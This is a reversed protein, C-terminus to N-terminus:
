WKFDTKHIALYIYNGKAGKNLDARENSGYYNVWSWNSNILISSPVGGTDSSGIFDIAKTDSPKVKRYALYLYEGGAGKNLDYNVKTWGAPVAANNGRLVVIDAIADQNSKRQQLLYSIRIYEGKAKHNADLAVGFNQDYLDAYVLNSYGSPISVSGNKSGWVNLAVIFMNYNGLKNEQNKVRAEFEKKIENAKVPNEQAVLTWIPILSKDFAAIGCLDPTSKLSSVWASYGANFSAQDIFSVNHGGKISSSFYSNNQLDTIKEQFGGSANGSFLKFSANITASMETDSNINSGTYSYNFEASGGHYCRGILHSGFNDLIYAASKTRISSLFDDNFYNRLTAPAINALYEDKVYHKGHGKAYRVTKGGDKTTKFETDVKGSFLVKNYDVNISANYHNYFTTVSEGSTVSWESFTSPTQIIARALNLKDIDLIPRNLFADDRNIYSSNIVDYGVGLFTLDRPVATARLVPQDMKPDSSALQYTKENHENEGVVVLIELTTSKGDQQFELTVIDMNDSIENTSLNDNISVKTKQNLIVRGDELIFIGVGGNEGGIAKISVSVIKNPIEGSKLKLVQNTIDAGEEVGSILVATEYKEKEDDISALNEIYSDEDPESFEFNNECGMLIFTLLGLLMIVNWTYRGKKYFVTKM